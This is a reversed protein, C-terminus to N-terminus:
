MDKIKPIQNRLAQLDKLYIELASVDNTSLAKELDRVIDKTRTTLKIVDIALNESKEIPKAAANGVIPISKIKPGFEKLIEAIGTAHTFALEQQMDATRVLEIATEQVIDIVEADKAIKKKTENIPRLYTFFFFLKTLALLLSGFIAMSYRLPDEHELISALVFLLTGVFM